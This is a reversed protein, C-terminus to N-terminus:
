MILEILDIQNSIEKRREELNANAEKWEETNEGYTLITFENSEIYKGLDTRIKDKETRFEAFGTCNKTESAM